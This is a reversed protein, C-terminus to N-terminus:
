SGPLSLDGSPGSPEDFLGQFQEGLFDQAWQEVPVADAPPPPIEVPQNYDVFRLDMTFTAGQGQASVSGEVALRHPLYSEPYLWIDVGVPGSFGEPMMPEDPASAPGLGGLAQGLSEAGEALDLTVRYHLYTGGDIEERGLDQVEGGLAEILARYDIPARSSLLEQLGRADMGAEEMSIHLWGSLGTYLYVDDGLLLLEMRSLDDLSFPLQGELDAGGPGQGIMDRLGESDLNLVMHLQDPDRYAFQADGGFTFGPASMSFTMEGRVSSVERLARASAGLAQAASAALDPPAAPRGYTGGSSGQAAEPAEDAAPAGTGSDAPSARDSGGSCAAALLLALAALLALPLAKRLARM